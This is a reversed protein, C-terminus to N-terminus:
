IARVIVGDPARRTWASTAVVGIRPLRTTFTVISEEFLGLEGTHIETTRVATLSSPEITSSGGTTVGAGVGAGLPVGVGAGLGAGEVTVGGGGAAVPVCAVEAGIAEACFMRFSM